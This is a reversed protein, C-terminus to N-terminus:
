LDYVTPLPESYPVLGLMLVGVVAAPRERPIKLLIEACLLSLSRPLPRATSAMM